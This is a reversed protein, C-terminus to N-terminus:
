KITLKLHEIVEPILEKHYKLYESQNIIDNIEDYSNPEFSCFFDFMINNIEQQIKNKQAFYLTSFEYNDVPIKKDFLYQRMRSKSFKNKECFIIAEATKEINKEDKKFIMDYMAPSFSVGKIEKTITDDFPTCFLLYHDINKKIFNNSEQESLNNKNFIEKEINFSIKIRNVYDTELIYQKKCINDEYYEDWIKIGNITLIKKRSAHCWTKKDYPDFGYQTKDEKEPNKRLDDLGAFTNFQIFEKLKEETIAIIEDHELKESKEEEISKLYKKINIMVDYITLRKEFTDNFIKQGEIIIPDVPAYDWTEINNINFIKLRECKKCLGHKNLNLFFYKSGCKACKLFM